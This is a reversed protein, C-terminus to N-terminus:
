RTFTLLNDNRFDIKLNSGVPIIRNAGLDYFLMPQKSVFDYIVAYRAQIFSSTVPHNSDTANINYVGIGGTESISIVLGDEPWDGGAIIQETPIQNINTLTKNFEASSTLFFMRLDLTSLEKVFKEVANDYIKTETLANAVHPSISVSTGGAIVNNMATTNISWSTGNFDYMVRTFADILHLGDRTFSITQGFNTFQTPQQILYDGYKKFMVTTYNGSSVYSIAVNRTDGSFAIRNITGINPLQQILELNITVDSTDPDVTKVPKYVYASTGNSTVVVVLSSDFSWYAASTPFGLSQQHMAYIPTGNPNTGNVYALTVANTTRTYLIWNADPSGSTSTVTNMSTPVIPFNQSSLGNAASKVIITPANVTGNIPTIYIQNKERGYSLNMPMSTNSAFAGSYITTPGLVAPSVSTINATGGNRTTVLLRSGENTWQLINTPEPATSNTSSPFGSASGLLAFAGNLLEYIRITNNSSYHIALLPNGDAM